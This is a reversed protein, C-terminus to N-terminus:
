NRLPVSLHLKNLCNRQPSSPLQHQHGARSLAKKDPRVRITYLRNDLDFSFSNFISPLM